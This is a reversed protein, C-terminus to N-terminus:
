IGLVQKLLRYRAASIKIKENNHLVILQKEGYREIRSIQRINVIYSRHIRVFSDLPLRDETYNMTQEKLWKGEATHISVYDGDAKIYLIHEIPIITIKQGVRVTIRDITPVPFTTATRSTDFKELEDNKSSEMPTKIQKKQSGNLNAGLSEHFILYSFYLIIFLLLSIFARVPITNVFSDFNQPFCLYTVFTEVGVVIMSVVLTLFLVFIIRFKPSYNFPIAFRFINILIICTFSLIVGDSLTNFLRFAFPQDFGIVFGYIVAVPFAATIYIKRYESFPTM